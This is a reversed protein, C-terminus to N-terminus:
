CSGACSVAFVPAAANAQYHKQNGQRSVKPM